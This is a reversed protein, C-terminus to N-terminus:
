DVIQLARYREISIHKAELKAFWHEAEVGYAPAVTQFQMQLFRRLVPSFPFVTALVLMKIRVGPNFSNVREIFMADGAPRINELGQRGRRPSGPIKIDFLGLTVGETQSTDRGILTPLRSRLMVSLWIAPASAGVTASQARHRRAKRRWPCLTRVPRARARLAGRSARPRNMM